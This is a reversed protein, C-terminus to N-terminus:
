APPLREFYAMVEHRPVVDAYKANLDFLNALHATRGRDFVCDEVVIVRYNYSFADVASARVCGSTTTGAIVVTDVGLAVLYSVLPSAFFASPKNKRIVVEHPRPAIEKVIEAGLRQREADDALVRANKQGWSGAGLPDTRYGQTSYFVPRGTKRACELLEAIRPIAQWGAEGCSNRFRTISDLIPEPRDGVFNYNVDVVLLAPRSGWEGRQGYGAARYVAMEDAPILTEWSREM